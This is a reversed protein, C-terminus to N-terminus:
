VAGHYYIRGIAVTLNFTHLYAGSCNFETDFEVVYVKSSNNYLVFDFRGEKIVIVWVPQSAQITTINLYENIKMNYTYISQEREKNWETQNNMNKALRNENNFILVSKNCRTIIRNNSHM